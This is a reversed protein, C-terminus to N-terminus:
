HAAAPPSPLMNRIATIRWTGGSQKLVLTTWMNRTQGNMSVTRYRGDVIAVSPDILRINEVTISSQNKEKKSSASTGRVLEDIGKRWEGTSVLQDADSTFLRPIANANKNNRAQMYQAVVDRIARSSSDAAKEQAYLTGFSTLILSLFITQVRRMRIM